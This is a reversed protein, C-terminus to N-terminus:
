QGVIAAFVSATGTGTINLFVNTFSGEIYFTGPKTSGDATVLPKVTIGTNGTDDFKVTLETDTELMLIKGVAIGSGSMISQDVIPLTLTLRQSRAESLASVADFKVSRDGRQILLNEGNAQESVKYFIQRTIYTTM